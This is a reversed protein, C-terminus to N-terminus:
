DRVTVAFDGAAFNAQAMDIQCETYIKGMSRKVVVMKKCIDNFAKKLADAKRKLM